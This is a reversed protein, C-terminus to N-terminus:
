WFFAFEPKKFGVRYTEVIGVEKGPTVLQFGINM